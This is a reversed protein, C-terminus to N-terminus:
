HGTGSIRHCFRAVSALIEDATKTWVFPKPVTNGHAIYALIAAELARTSRHSGRKIQKDTLLAFWREVFKRFELARHRRHLQGIVQGSQADLAAFLSTTGHRVYDHTRREVQGPRMPLLPQTRDLAQIQSKEDVCLVLARDPPNPYLGVIDRVKEIFLPDNSLKFTETRHPQLAFARWIRNVTSRSLGCAQAMARTSWQTADAPKTELTRTLVAEVTADTVTRPAGPRPEDLLGDVRTALFRTRWQRRNAQDAAARAGPAHEDQGRRADQAFLVVALHRHTHRHRVLRHAQRDGILEVQRLAPRTIATPPPGGAHGGGDRELRLPLDREPLDPRQLGLLHRGSGDDGIGAVAVRGREALREGGRPQRVDDADLLLRRRPRGARRRPRRLSPLAAAPRGCAHPARRRVSRLAELLQGARQRRRRPPRHRPAFPRAARHAGAERPQAHPGGMAILLTRLGPPGLPQQDLPWPAFGLGRLIPERGQRRRRGDGVEDAEGLQTPADLAVILLELVLEPEIMELAPAPAAKMMM